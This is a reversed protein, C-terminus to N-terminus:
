ESKERAELAKLLAICLALAPTLAELNINHGWGSQLRVNWKGPRGLRYIGIEWGSSAVGGFPSPLVREVLAVAADLSSTYPALEGFRDMVDSKADTVWEGRTPSKFTDAEPHLFMFLEADLERSPESAQELKEILTRTMIAADSPELADARVQEMLEMIADTSQAIVLPMEMHWARSVAARVKERLEDAQTM